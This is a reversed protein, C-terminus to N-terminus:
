SLEPLVTALRLEGERWEAVAVLEGVGDVLGLRAAGISEEPPDVGAAAPQQGQRIRREQEASIELREDDAFLRRPSHLATTRPWQEAIVTLTAADDLGFPGVRTRRLASLHAPGGLAQGLDRALSRIYTGGGCRVRLRARESECDLVEISEVHVQRPELEFHEDGARVRDYSRRGNVRIASLRPPLQEIEGEFRACARELAPREVCMPQRETVEGTPDLSDTAVGFRVEAEYEKSGASLLGLLRTAPGLGCVLLGTAFPDLTGAHGIRGLGTIRRLDRVADFSTPGADKDVCLFRAPGVAGRRRTM